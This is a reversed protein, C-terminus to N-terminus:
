YTRFLGVLKGLIICNDVIIADMNDNEPQLRYRNKEKYFTKITAEDDILALVKEGNRASNTKEIIVYDGDCIGANIM